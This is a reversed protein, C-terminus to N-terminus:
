KDAHTQQYQQLEQMLIQIKASLEPLRVYDQWLTDEVIDHIQGAVEMIIRKQRAIMKTPNSSAQSQDPLTTM